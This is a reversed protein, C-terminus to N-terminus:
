ARWHEAFVSSAPDLGVIRVRVFRYELEDILREVHRLVLQDTVVSDTLDLHLAAHDPVGALASALQGLSLPTIPGHASVMQMKTEPDRILGVMLDPVIRRLVRPAPPRRWIWRLARSGLPARPPLFSYPIM